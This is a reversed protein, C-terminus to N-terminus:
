VTASGIWYADGSDGFKEECLRMESAETITAAFSIVTLVLLLVSLQACAVVRLDKKSKV